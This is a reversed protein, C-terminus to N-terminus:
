HERDYLEMLLKGHWNGDRDGNDRWMGAVNDFSTGWFHKKPPRPIREFHKLKIDAKKCAKIIAQFKPDQDFRLQLLKRMIGISESNWRKTDLKWKNRTYFGLGGKSKVSSAVYGKYKPNSDEEDFKQGKEFKKKWKEKEEEEMKTELYDLKACQFAAEVSSYVKGDVHLGKPLIKFNSLYKAIKDRTKSYYQVVKPQQGTKKGLGVGKERAQAIFKAIEQETSMPEVPDVSNTIPNKDTRRQKQPRNNETTPGLHVNEISLMGCVRCVCM